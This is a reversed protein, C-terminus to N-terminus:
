KKSEIYHRIVDDALRFPTQALSKNLVMSLSVSDGELDPFHLAYTTYGPGGGGHGYSDGLPAKRFHMLGLGYSPISEEPSNSWVDVTRKMESLSKQSILKGGFLADYFKAVDSVTSILCGTAIWGPHYRPRFDGEISPDEGELLNLEYDPELFPRTDSLGVKEIIVKTLYDYYGMGAKKEILEKLLGYGPNSYSWGEGPHFLPTGRLGAKMLKESDWPEDPHEKIGREYDSSTFYDSLGGTHNLLQRVTVERPIPTHSFFASFREDLFDGQDECLTMLAVATFTKSISYIYYPRNHEQLSISGASYIKIIGNESVALLIGKCGLEPLAEELIKTPIFNAKM